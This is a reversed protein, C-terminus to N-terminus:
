HLEYRERGAHGLAAAAKQLLDTAEDAGKVQILNQFFETALTNYETFGVTVVRPTAIQKFQELVLSRPYKQYAPLSNLLSM